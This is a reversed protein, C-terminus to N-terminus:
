SETGLRDDGYYEFWDFYAENSSPQNISTAYLAYVCGVFGGAERTSLFKADVNDTLLTWKDDQSYHFAYVSGKAEIKLKIITDTQVLVDEALLEMPCKSKIGSKFLQIVSKEQRMSKCLFYFHFENQFILLGAKENEASPSFALAVCGYGNLHQQRRGIFSPNVRESCVQPRVKLALFSKRKELSYWMEYPTRLFMWEYNLTNNEFHDKFIFNGNLRSEEAKTSKYPVPYCHQIAEFGPNIKPWGDKWQVPALFTERGTNYYDGEYPRCGLFVAWWEGSETEVFDAHGTTTIPHKRNADLTRQTLIPNNQYPLYPGAVKKSRFVVESHDFGTGGEAAILYYFDDKKFLHPAEIWIPKTSIDSGGNVLIFENGMMKLTSLNFAFMRISRHGEYLPKDNPAISNYVIYTKNNEDFFLCPDIGNIEPIWVPDSWSGAPDFSQVIFNGGGGILTCTVYFVGKYYRIAPAFIGESVGLGDLSLQSPRDMVNGIQKWNILDVSHFIPIGPFYSFTSTVLYYNKGVRCISPDPYFGSLVPNRFFEM